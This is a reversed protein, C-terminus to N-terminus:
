RFQQYYFAISTVIYNWIQRVSQWFKGFVELVADLRGVRGQKENSPFSWYKPAVKEHYWKKLLGCFELPACTNIIHISKPGLSPALKKNGFAKQM